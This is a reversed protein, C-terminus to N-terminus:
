SARRRARPAFPRKIMIWALLIAGLVLLALTALPELAWRGPGFRFALRVRESASFFYELNHRGHWDGTKHVRIWLRAAEDQDAPTGRGYWLMIGLNNQCMLNKLNACNRYYAVAKAHDPAVGEGREYTQGLQYIAESDWFYAARELWRLGEPVDPPIGGIGDLLILGLGRAATLDGLEAAVRLDALMADIRRALHLVASRSVLYETNDPSLALARNYNALSNETQGMEHYIHGLMRFAYHNSGSAAVAEQYGKLADLRRQSHLLYGAQDSIVKSRIEQALQKLKPHDQSDIRSAFATMADFSGGWHPSLLAVYAEYPGTAYPDTKIARQLVEFSVERNLMLNASNIMYQYATIPKATLKTASGLYEYATALHSRALEIQKPPSNNAERHKGWADAMAYHYRARALHAVYSQPYHKVWENFLPEWDPDAIELWGLARRLQSENNTDSEYAAQLMSLANDLETFKKERLAQHALEYSSIITAGDQIYAPAAFGITSAGIGAVLASQRLFYRIGYM